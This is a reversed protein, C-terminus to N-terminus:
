PAIGLPELKSIVAEIDMQASKNVYFKRELQDLFYYLWNTDDYFSSYNSIFDYISDQVNQFLSDSKLALSEFADLAIKSLTRGYGTTKFEKEYSIKLLQLLFPISQSIELYRLPSSNLPGKTLENEEICSDIYYQLAEIDQYRILFEASKFKKSESGSNFINKLFEYAFKSKSDVLLEIVKWLFPDDIMELIKELKILGDPALSTYELLLTRIDDYKDSSRNVIEKLAYEIGDFIKHRMLYRIHNQLVDDIEIGDALNNLIRDTMINKNLHQELYDIGVEHFDFSLMDLLISQQFEFNFKRFFYWIYIANWSITITTHSTKEIAQKFNMSGIKSSCWKLIWAEQLGTLKLDEYNQFFDYLKEIRFQDWDKNALLRKVTLLSIDQNSFFTRLIDYSLDSFSPEALYTAKLNYLEESTLIEKGESLFISNIDEMLSDVDFLLEIDRNRRDASIQEWNPPENFAFKEGYKEIIEPIAKDYLERNKWRLTSLLKDFLEDGIKGADLEDMVYHLSDDDILEVLLEEKYPNDKILIRKVADSVTNAKCYFENFQTREDQGFNSVLFFSFEIAYDLIEPDETYAYAASNALFSIDHDGIFLGHFHNYNELFYSILKKVAQPSRIKKLGGRLEGREDMLRSSTDSSLDYSAYPIGEIYVDIYKDIYGTHNLYYYMGYRVWDSQSNKISNVVREVTEVSTFDQSALASLAKEQIGEDIKFDFQNTAIRELLSGIQARYNQLLDINALINIINGMNILSKTNELENILFKIIENSQGFRALEATSFKDRDIWIDKENYNNYIDKFLSIRTEEAIISPETKVCIEPGNEILWSLLTSDESLSMLFSVANVWSPIIRNFLPEFSVFIKIIDLPQRSLVRAAFYEQLSNHEFQWKKDVDGEKKWATSYVMLERLSGDHILKKFEEDSIYNRGLCEMALALYELTKIIKVQDPELDRTNRFHSKDLILRATFLEHFLSARDTPLSHNEKFIQILKILYFPVHVLQTLNNKYIEDLFNGKAGSLQEKLYSEVQDSDFDLLKFTDFGELTGSFENGESQYFNTRCSVIISSSPYKQSFFEIKRIADKKNSSEIEDLGDLIILRQSEPIREWGEPLMQGIDQNSFLNLHTSLPYVPSDEKSLENSVRLLEFTKGVGADGILVIRKKIRTLEVLDKKDKDQLFWLENAQYENVPLVVRPLYNEIEPYNIRNFQIDTDPIAALEGCIEQIWYDRPHLYTGVIGKHPRLKNRLTSASWPEYLIGYEKFVQIQNNIENIQQTRSLDCALFLIFRKINKKSWHDWNNFFETTVGRIESPSIREYCKCQGVEIGDGSKSQAYLDIGYQSQGRTGYINCISITSEKEFLDRCLEQFIYEDLKYFPPTEGKRIGPQMNTLLSETLM